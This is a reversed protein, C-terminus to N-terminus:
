TSCMEPLILKISAPLALFHHDARCVEGISGRGLPAVLRYSGFERARRVLKVQFFNLRTMKKKLCFVAYSISVHSSNLRTSKRDVAHRDDAVCGEVHLARPAAARHRHRDRGALMRGVLQRRATGIQQEAIEGVHVADHLDSSRRTPFSPLARTRRAPALSCSHLTPR